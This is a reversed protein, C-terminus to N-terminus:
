SVPEDISLWNNQSNPDHVDDCDIELFQYKLLNDIFNFSYQTSHANQMSARRGMEYETISYSIIKGLIYKVCVEAENDITSYHNTKAQRM